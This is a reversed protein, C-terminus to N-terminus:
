KTYKYLDKVDFPKVADKDIKVELKKVFEAVAKDFEDGKLMQLVAPTMNETWYEDGMMDGRVVLVYLKNEKDEIVQVAGVKMDKVTKFYSTEYDTGEAGLLSAYADKPTLEKEAESSTAGSSTDSVVSSASATSSVKSSTADDKINNHEKYIVEFKTGKKLRAAYGELKKKAEAKKDDKLDATSVEIVNAIVFKEDMTKLIESEAVAKTGGEAYLSNFYAQNYAANMSMHKYTDYSVGNPEFLSSYGYNWYYDVYSEISAVDDKDPEVKADACLFKYAAYETILEKARDKVWTYYDKNDIKQSYFLKDTIDENKVDKDALIEQVKSSAESDANMLACLYMASTFTETKDGYKVTVATEDKEHCAAFSFVMIGVLLLAAVKKLINM